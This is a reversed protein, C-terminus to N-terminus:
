VRPPTAHPPGAAAAAAPCRMAFVIERGRKRHEVFDTLQRVLFLGRGHHLHLRDARTPDPVSAPDFGPGQDRVAVVIGAGPQAYCRVRFTRRPDGGGGHRVANALAEHLAIEFDAKRPGNCGAKGAIAGIRRAARRVSDPTSPLTARYRLTVRRRDLMPGAGVRQIESM